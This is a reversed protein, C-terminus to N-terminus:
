STGYWMGEFILEPTAAFGIFGSEITVVSEGGEHIIRTKAGLDLKYAVAVAGSGCAKTWGVGREFTRIRVICNGVVEYFHINCDAYKASLEDISVIEEVGLVLHKNGTVIVGDGAQQPKPFCITVRKDDMIATYRIGSIRLDIASTNDVFKDRIYAAAACAGNGCMSAKTGDQNAFDIVYCSCPGNKSIFVVQDCGIGLNRDAIKRILEEDLMKRTQHNIIVFDNGNTHAKVFEM